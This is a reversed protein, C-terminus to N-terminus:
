KDVEAEKKEGCKIWHKLAHIVEVEAYFNNQRRGVWQGRLHM